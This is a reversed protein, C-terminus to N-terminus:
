VISIFGKFHEKNYENNKYLEEKKFFVSFFIDIANRRSNKGNSNIIGNQTENKQENKCADYIFVINKRGRM